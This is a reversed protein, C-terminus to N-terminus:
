DHAELVAIGEDGLRNDEKNSGSGDEQNVQNRGDCDKRGIDKNVKTERVMSNIDDGKSSENDSSDSNAPKVVVDVDGEKGLGAGKEGEIFKEKTLEESVLTSNSIYADALSTVTTLAMDLVAEVRKRLQDSSSEVTKIFCFRNIKNLSEESLNFPLIM